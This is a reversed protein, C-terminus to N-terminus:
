CYHCVPSGNMVVTTSLANCGQGAEFPNEILFGICSDGVRGGAGTCTDWTHIGHIGVMDLKHLM